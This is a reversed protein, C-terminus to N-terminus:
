AQELKALRAEVDANVARQETVFEQFAKILIPLLISYKVYKLGHDEGGEVTGVLSPFIQELEDAVVGIQKKNNRRNIYTKIAVDMIQSLKSSSVEIDKKISRDSLSAYSGNTNRLDGDGQVVFNKTMTGGTDSYFFLVEAGVNNVKSYFRAIPDTDNSEVNLLAENATQSQPGLEVNGNENVRFADISPPRVEVKQASSGVDLQFNTAEWYGTSTDYALAGSSDGMTTAMTSGHQASIFIDTFDDDNTGLSKGSVSPIAITVTAKTGYSSTLTVRGGETWVDTSPSGGSGFNQRTAVYLVKGIDSKGDFSLTFTRGQLTHVHPIRMYMRHYSNNGLSTGNDANTWRMAYKPADTIGDGGATIDSRSVTIDVATGSDADEEYHWYDALVSSSGVAISTGNHWLDMRGNLIPNKCGQSILASLTSDLDSSTVTSIPLDYTANDITHVTVDASTQIVMKTAGDVFVSARGSADLVVPQSHAVSKTSDQYVTMDDTTGPDYFYVKGSALPDGNSDTVGALLADVQKATNAM